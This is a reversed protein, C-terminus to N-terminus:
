NKKKVAGFLIYAYQFKVLENTGSVLVTCTIILCLLISSTPHVRSVCQITFNTKLFVSSGGAGEATTRTFM